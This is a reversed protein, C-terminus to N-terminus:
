ERSKLFLKNIQSLKILYTKNNLRHQKESLRVKPM